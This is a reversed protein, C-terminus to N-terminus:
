YVRRREGSNDFVFCTESLTALNSRIEGGLRAGRAAARQLWPLWIPCPFITWDPLVPKQDRCSVTVHDRSSSTRHARGANQCASSMQMHIAPRIISAEARVISRTKCGAEPAVSPLACRGRQSSGLPSPPPPTLTLKQVSELLAVASVKVLVYGANCKTSKTYDCLLM